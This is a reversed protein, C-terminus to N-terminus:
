KHKKMKKRRKRKVSDMMVEEWEKDWQEQLQVREADKSVDLGLTRLTDEWSVVSGVRSMTMAHHLQRAAEADGDVGVAAGAFTGDLNLNTFPSPPLRDTSGDAASSVVPSRFLPAGTPPSTFISSPNSILLLPRHLSFFQHIKFDKSNVIPHPSLHNHYPNPAHRQLYSSSSGNQFPQARATEHTSESSAADSVPKSNTTSSTNNSPAAKTSPSSAKTSSDKPTGGSSDSKNKATVVPSKSSKSSNFYRGGGFSSYPRRTAPIHRVLRALASM